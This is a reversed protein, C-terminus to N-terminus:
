GEDGESSDGSHRKRMLNTLHQIRRGRSAREMEALEAAQRAARQRHMDKIQAPTLKKGKRTRVYPIWPRRKEEEKLYEKFNM